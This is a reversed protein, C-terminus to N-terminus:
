ESHGKFTYVHSGSPAANAGGAGVAVVASALADTAGLSLARRMPIGAM